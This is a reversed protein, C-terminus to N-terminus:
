VSLKKLTKWQSTDKIYFDTVVGVEDSKEPWKITSGWDEISYLGNHCLKIFDWGFEEQFELTRKVFSDVNPRNNPLTEM